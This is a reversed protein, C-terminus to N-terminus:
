NLNQATWSVLDAVAKGFAQDLSAVASSVKIDPVPVAAEFTRSAVIRGNEGLIKAAFEVRAMTAPQSSGAAPANSVEFSRLDIALQYDANFGQL